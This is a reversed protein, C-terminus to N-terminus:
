GGTFFEVIDMIKMDRFRRGKQHRSLTNICRPCATIVTDAGTAALEELRALTVARAFNRNVLGGGFGGGCCFTHKGTRQPHKVEVGVSELYSSLGEEVEAGRTLACPDHYSVPGKHGPLPNGDFIEMLYDVYFLVDKEIKQNFLAQAYCEPSFYVVRPPNLSNLLNAHEEKKEHALQSAGMAEPLAGCCGEKELFAWRIRRDSLLQAFRLAALASREGSFASCGWFVVVEAEDVPSALSQIQRYALMAQRAVNKGNESVKRLVSEVKSPVVGREVAEERLAKIVPIIEIGSPCAAECAGCFMCEYVIRGFATDEKIRKDLVGQALYLKGGGTHSFLGFYTYGPCNINEGNFSIFCTACRNCTYLYFAYSASRDIGVAKRWLHATCGQPCGQM